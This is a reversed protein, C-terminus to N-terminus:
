VSANLDVFSGQNFKFVVNLENVNPINDYGADLFMNAYRRVALAIWEKDTLKATPPPIDAEFYWATEEPYGAIKGDETRYLQMFDLDIGKEKMSRDARDKMEILFARNNREQEDDASMAFDTNYYFEQQIWPPTSVSEDVSTLVKNGILPLSAIRILEEALKKNDSESKLGSV